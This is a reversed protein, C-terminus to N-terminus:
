FRDLRPPFKHLAEGAASETGAITTFPTRATTAPGFPVRTSSTESTTVPGPCVASSSSSNITSNSISLIGVRLPSAYKRMIGLVSISIATTPAPARTVSASSPLMSCATRAKPATAGVTTRIGSASCASTPEVASSSVRFATAAAALSAQSGM